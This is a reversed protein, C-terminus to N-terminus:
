PDGREAGGIKSVDPGAGKLDAPTVVRWERPDELISPLVVSGTEPSNTAKKWADLTMIFSNHIAWERNLLWYANGDGHWACNV